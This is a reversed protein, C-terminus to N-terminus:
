MRCAAVQTTLPDVDGARSRETSCSAPPTRMAPTTRPRRSSTSSCTVCISPAVTARRTSGQRPACEAEDRSVAEGLLSGNIWRWEVHTLHNVIGALAILRGDPTWHSQADTLGATSAVVLERQLQLFRLLLEREDSTPVVDDPTRFVM